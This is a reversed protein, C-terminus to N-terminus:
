FNLGGKRAGEALAKVRGHYKYGARDFVVKKIKKALADHALKEGITYALNTKPNKSDEKMGKVKLTSVAALTEGKTDDIIQAYLYKNSRSVVLRPISQSGRVNKRIHAHRKLRQSM